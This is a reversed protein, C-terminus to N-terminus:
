FQLLWLTKAGVGNQELIEQRHDYDLTDFAKKLDLFNKFIPLEKIM